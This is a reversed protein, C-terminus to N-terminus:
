LFRREATATIDIDRDDAGDSVEITGSGPRWNPYQGDPRIPDSNLFSEEESCDITLVDGATLTEEITLYESTAPNGIIIQVDEDDPDIDNINLVIVPSSEFTGLPVILISTSADTINQADVLTDTFGDVAYGSQVEFEISYTCYTIQRGNRGIAVNIPTCTYERYGTGYDIRLQGQSRNMALKLTDVATELELRTNAIIEGTVVINRSKYRDFVKKSGHKRALAFTKTERNPSSNDPYDTVKYPVTNLAFGEFAIAPIDDM